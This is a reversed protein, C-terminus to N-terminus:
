GLIGNSVLNIALTDISMFSIGFDINPYVHIRTHTHSYVLQTLAIGKTSWFAPVIASAINKLITQSYSVGFATM